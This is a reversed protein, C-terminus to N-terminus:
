SAPSYHSVFTTQNGHTMRFREYAERSRNVFHIVLLAERLTHWPLWVAHDRADWTSVDRKPMPISLEPDASTVQSPVHAMWSSTLQGVCLRANLNAQPWAGTSTVAREHVNTHSHTCNSGARIHGSQQGNMTDKLQPPHSRARTRAM